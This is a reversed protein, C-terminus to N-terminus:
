VNVTIVANAYNAAYEAPASILSGDYTNNFFSFSSAGSLSSIKLLEKQTDGPNYQGSNAIKNHKVVVIADVGKGFRIAREGIEEVPNAAAKLTALTGDINNNLIRVSGTFTNAGEHQVGIANHETNKITNNIVELDNFVAAYLGLHYGEINNNSYSVNNVPRYSTGVMSGRVYVAMSSEISQSSSSILYKGNKQLAKFNCNNVSVNSFRDVNEQVYSEYHTYIKGPQLDEENKNTFNMGTYEIGDIYIHNVQVGDADEEYVKGKVADYMEAKSWEVMGTRCIINGTFKANSTGALVTDEIVRYYIYPTDVHEASRVTELSIADGQVAHNANYEYATTEENNGPRLYLDEYVGETFIVVKNSIEETDLITQANSPTAIIYSGTPMIDQNKYANTGDWYYTYGSPNALINEPETPENKKKCGTLVVLGSLMVCCGLIIGQKLYKKFSM